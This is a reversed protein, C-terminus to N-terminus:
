PRRSTGSSPKASAAYLRLTASQIMCGEPVAPLSFRVLARFNDSPGKSQVKLISDSGKNSTPSNEDIWSDAAALATM